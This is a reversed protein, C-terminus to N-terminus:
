GRALTFGYVKEVELEKKLVKACESLTSGTTYVDDVLVIEPKIKTKLKKAQFVGKVNAQRQKKNLGSQRQSLQTKALLDFQSLYHTIGSLVQAILVAQNYGRENESFPHLPVATILPDNWAECEEQSLGRMMIMHIVETLNRVTPKFKFSNVLSRIPGRYWCLSYIQDLPSKKSCGHNAFGLVATKKCAPCFQETLFEIENICGECLFEGWRRCHVCRKPFFLDLIKGFM